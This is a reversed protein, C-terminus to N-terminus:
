FLADEGDDIIIRPKKPWKPLIINKSKSLETGFRNIFDIKLPKNLEKIYSNSFNLKNPKGEILNIEYIDQDHNYIFDVEVNEAVTFDLQYIGEENSFLSYSILQENNKGKALKINDEIITITSNKESNVDIFDVKLRNSNNLNLNKDINKTAEKESNSFYFNNTETEINFSKEVATNKSISYDLYFLGTIDKKIEFSKLLKPKEITSELGSEDSCSCLFTSIFVILIAIIKNKM